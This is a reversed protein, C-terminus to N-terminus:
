SWSAVLQGYTLVVEALTAATAAAAPVVVISVRLPTRAGRKRLAKVEAVKDAIRRRARRVGTVAKSTLTVEFILSIMFAMVVPAM